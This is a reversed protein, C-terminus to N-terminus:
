EERRRDRQLVNVLTMGCVAVLVTMLMAATGPRAEEDVSTRWLRVAELALMCTLAGLTVIAAVRCRAAAWVACSVGGGLATLLTTMGLTPELHRALLSLGMLFVGCLVLEIRADPDM